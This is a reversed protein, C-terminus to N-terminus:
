FESVTLPSVMYCKVTQLRGSAKDDDNWYYQVDFFVRGTEMDFYSGRDIMQAMQYSEDSYQCVKSVMQVKRKKPDGNYNEDCIRWHYGTSWTYYCNKYPFAVGGINTDSPLTTSRMYNDNQWGDIGAVKSLYNNDGSNLNSWRGYLTRKLRLYVVNDTMMVTGQPLHSKNLVFPLLYENGSEFPEDSMDVVAKATVKVRGAELAVPEIKVKSADFQKYSKGHASNYAAVLSPDYTFEVTFDNVLMGNLRVDIDVEHALTTAAAYRDTDSVTLQIEQANVKVYFMNGQVVKYTSSVVNLPLLFTKDPDAESAAFTITYRFSLTEIDFTGQDVSYFRAPLLEYDTGNKANYENVMAQSANVTLRATELTTFNATGALELKREVPVGKIFSLSQMAAPADVTVTPEEFSFYIMTNLYKDTSNVADKPTCVIPIVYNEAAAASGAMAVIASPKFRVPFGTSKAKEPFALETTEITYCSEPMLKLSAGNLENYEKILAEDIAVDFSAARSLGETRTMNVTYVDNQYITISSVNVMGSNELMTDPLVVIPDYEVECAGAGFAAAALM